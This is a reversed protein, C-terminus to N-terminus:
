WDCGVPSVSGSCVSGRSQSRHAGDGGRLGPQRTTPCHGLGTGLHASEGFSEWAASSKWQDKGRIKGEGRSRRNARQYGRRRSQGAPETALAAAASRGLRHPLTASRPTLPEDGHRLYPRRRRPRPAAPGRPPRGKRGERHQGM